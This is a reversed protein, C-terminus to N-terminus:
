RREFARRAPQVKSGNGSAGDDSLVEERPTEKLSKWPGYPTVGTEAEAQACLLYNPWNHAEYSGRFFNTLQVAGKRGSEGQFAVNLTVREKDFLGGTYNTMKGLAQDILAGSLTKERDAEPRVESVDLLPMEFDDAQGSSGPFTIALMPNERRGRLTVYAFRGHPLRPHGGIYEARTALVVNESSLLRNLDGNTHFHDVIADLLWFLWPVTGLLLLLDVSSSAAAVVGWFMWWPM